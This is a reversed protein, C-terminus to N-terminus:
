RHLGSYGSMFCTPVDSIAFGADLTRLTLVIQLYYEKSDAGDFDFSTLMASRYVRYGGTADRMSLGLLIRAYADAVRGLLERCKPCNKVCGGPVWRSGIVLGVSDSASATELM